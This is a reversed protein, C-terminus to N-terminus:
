RGPEFTGESTIDGDLKGDFTLEGAFKLTSKLEVDSNLVNKSNNNPTTMNTRKSKQKGKYKNSEEALWTL